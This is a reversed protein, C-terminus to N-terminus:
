YATRRDSDARERKHGPSTPSELSPFLYSVIITIVDKPLKLPSFTITLLQFALEKEMGIREVFRDHSDDSWYLHPTRDVWHPCGDYYYLRYQNEFTGNQISNKVENEEGRFLFFGLSALISSNAAGDITRQLTDEYIQFLETGPFLYKRDMIYIHQKETFSWFSLPADAFDGPIGEGHLGCTKILLFDKHFKGEQDKKRVEYAIFAGSLVKFPLHHFLVLDGHSLSTQPLSPMFEKGRQVINSWWLKGHKKGRLPHEAEFIQNKLKLIICDEEFLCTRLLFRFKDESAKGLESVDIVSQKKYKRPILGLPLRQFLSKRSEEM